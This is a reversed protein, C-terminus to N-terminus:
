SSLCLQLGVFYVEAGAAARRHLPGELLGAAFDSAVSGLAFGCLRRLLTAAVSSDVSAKTSSGQTADMAEGSSNTASVKTQATLEDAKRAGGSM